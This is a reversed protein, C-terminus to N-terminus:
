AERDPEASGADPLRQHNDELDDANSARHRRINELDDANSARHRRINELDDAHHDGILLSVKGDTMQQLLQGAQNGVPTAMAAQLAELSDFYLEHIMSCAINGYLIHNVRSTTERQLGPMQEVLHLFQPWAADFAAAQADEILIVLKYM